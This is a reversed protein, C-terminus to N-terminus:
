VLRGPGDPLLVLTVDFDRYRRERANVDGRHLTIVSGAALEVWFGTSLYVWEGAPPGRYSISVAARAVARLEALDALATSGWLRGTFRLPAPTRGSRGHKFWTTSFPPRTVKPRPTGPTLTDPIFSAPLVYVGGDSQTVFFQGDSGPAVVTPLPM